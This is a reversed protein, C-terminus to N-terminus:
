GPGWIRVTIRGVNDNNSECLVPVDRPMLECVTVCSKAYAVVDGIANLVAASLSSGAVLSNSSADTRL